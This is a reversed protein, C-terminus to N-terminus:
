DKIEFIKSPERAGKILRIKGESVGFISSIIKVVRRNALGAVPKEKVKIEYSDQARKVVEERGNWGAFVKVKIFM